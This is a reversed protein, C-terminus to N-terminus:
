NVKLSKQKEQDEYQKTDEQIKKGLKINNNRDEDNEKKKFDIQMDFYKKNEKKQDAQRTKRREEENLLYQDRDNQYKMIKEDELALRDDNVKVVNEVMKSIFECQRNECRKFYDVRAQEQRTLIRSYEEMAQIDSEREKKKMELQNKKFEINALQIQKYAEKVEAKKILANKNENEIIDLQRQLLMQDHKLEEAFLIKKRIKDEKLQKDRIEKEVMIKRKFENEKDKESKHYKEVDKLVYNSYQTREKCEEQERLQKESIQSDLHSKNILKIESRKIERQKRENEFVKKNYSMIKEWEDGHKNIEKKPKDLLDEETPEVISRSIAAKKDIPPLRSEPKIETNSINLNNQSIVPQSQTIKVNLIERNKKFIVSLNKELKKFDTDNVKDKSLFIEVEDNLMKNEKILGFMKMYKMILLNKLKNRKPRVTSTTTIFNEKKPIKSIFPKIKAHIISKMKM